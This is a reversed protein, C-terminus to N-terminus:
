SNEALLVLDCTPYKHFGRKFLEVGEELFQTPFDLAM